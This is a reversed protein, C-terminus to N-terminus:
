GQIVVPAANPGPEGGLYTWTGNALEWREIVYDVVTVERGGGNVGETVLPSVEVTVIFGADTPAAHIIRANFGHIYMPRETLWAFHERRQDPIEKMRELGPALKAFLERTPGKADPHPKVSFAKYNPVEDPPTGIHKTAVMTNRAGRKKPRQAAGAVGAVGLGIGGLALCVGIVMWRKRIM